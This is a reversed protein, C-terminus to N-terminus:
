QGLMAKYHNQIQADTLLSDYVAVKGIAGRFWADFAMTGINLPSNSATPIVKYSSMCETDVKLGNVWLSITGPYDTSCYWPTTETQYEAVVHVWQGPAIDTTPVWAAGSGFQASNNFAYAALRTPMALTTGSGYIRAEWECTPSYQQCKGMWDTYGNQTEYPFQLTDPRIWGEWTLENTTPISLSPSSPVTLYQGAGNFVAVPDGNPMKATAPTGGQYSGNNNHGSQDKESGTTASNMALYMAPKDALIATDYSSLAVPASAGPDALVTDGMVFDDMLADAYDSEIGARGPSTIASGFKAPDDIVSATQQWTHYRGLDTYLTLRTGSATDDVELRVGNWQQLPILDPNSTPDYNGLILKKSAITQAKGNTIKKIVAYGDVRIGGYYYNKADIYRMLVAEGNWANSNAQNSINDTQRNFYVQASPYTVSNKTLMLFMNQPHVGNDSQAPYNVM